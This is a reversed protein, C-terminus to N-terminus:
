EASPVRTGRVPSRGAASGQRRGIGNLTVAFAVAWLMAAVVALVPIAHLFGPTGPSGAIAGFLAVGCATGIQRATNSVGTALGSRDPPTARVVAAVVSTTVLGAGVGLLAFGALLWGIGSSPHVQTLLLSGFVAAGCGIAIATRPGRRATLRGSVPALAVLPVALPLMACGAAFPSYHLADQLYLMSVFLLGNFVLNMTLAVVNPSLFDRRRLLDWPLIPHASHRASRLAIGLAAVTVLASAASLVPDSHHGASIVTFVLGSLGVVFGTLGLIDIGGAQRNAPRAPVVVPIAVLALVILPVNIWFVPRWGLGSVLLGGLLPGAPLALSSIAAWTGLAKAQAARDPFADVLAAMTGPLLLAGGIGQLVRGGILVGIAPALACILSAVGFVAFGILLIRRHGFRDGLTGGALLLGGIAVAYGDVVWQLTASDAHLQRGISPLAVNVITVDLLVLFMGACLVTLLWGPRVPPDTKTMARTSTSM